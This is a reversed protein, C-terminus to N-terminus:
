RRKNKKAQEDEEMLRQREAAMQKNIKQKRLKNKRRQAENEEREKKLGTEHVKYRNKPAFITYLMSMFLVLVVFIVVAVGYKMPEQMFSDPSGPGIGRSLENAEFLSSYLAKQVPEGLVFSVVGLAVILLFGLAPLWKASSKKKGANAIYEQQSM